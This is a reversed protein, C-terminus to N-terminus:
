MLLLNCKDNDFKVVGPNEQFIHGKFFQDAREKYILNYIKDWIKQIEINACFSIVVYESINRIEVLTDHEDLVFKHTFYDWREMFDLSYFDEIKFDSGIENAISDKLVNLFKIFYKITTILGEFDINNSKINSNIFVPDVFNSQVFEPYIAPLAIGCSRVFGHHALCKEKVNRISNVVVADTPIM